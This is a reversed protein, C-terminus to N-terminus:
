QRAWSCALRAGTAKCERLISMIDKGRGVQAKLTEDGQRLAAKKEALIEESTEAIVDVIDRYRRLDTWFLSLFDVAARRFRAPGIRGVHPLVAFRWFNLKM